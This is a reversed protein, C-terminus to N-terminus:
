YTKVKDLIHKEFDIPLRINYREIYYVLKGSWEYIGDSHLEKRLKLTKEGSIVDIGIGPSIYLIEGGKLYNIIKNKKDDDYYGTEANNINFMVKKM